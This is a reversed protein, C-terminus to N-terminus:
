SHPESIGYHLCLLARRRRSFHALRGRRKGLPPACVAAAASLVDSQSPAAASQPCGVRWKGATAFSGGSTPSAKLITGSFPDYTQVMISSAMVATPSLLAHQSRVQTTGPRRLSSCTCARLSNSQAGTNLRRHNGSGKSVGESLSPKTRQHNKKKENGGAARLEFASARSGGLRDSAGPPVIRARLWSSGRSGSRTPRLGPYPPCRHWGRPPHSPCRPACPRSWEQQRGRVGTVLQTRQLIPLSRFTLFHFKPAFVVPYLGRSKGWGPCHSELTGSGGLSLCPNPM